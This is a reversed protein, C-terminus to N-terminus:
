LVAYLTTYVHLLSTYRLLVNHDIADSPPLRCASIVIVPHGDRDSGSTSIISYKELMEFAEEYEVVDDGNNEPRAGGGTAM